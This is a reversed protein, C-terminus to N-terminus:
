RRVGRRRATGRVLAVGVVILAAAVFMGGTDAGTEALAQPPLPVCGTGTDNSMTYAPCDFSGDAYFVEGTYDVDGPETAIWYSAGIGNGHASADWYCPLPGSSGDEVACAPLDHVDNALCVTGDLSPYLCDTLDIM